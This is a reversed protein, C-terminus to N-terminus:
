DCICQNLDNYQCTGSACDKGNGTSIAGKPKLTAPPPTTIASPETSTEALRTLTSAAMTRVSTVGMVIILITAALTLHKLVVATHNGM